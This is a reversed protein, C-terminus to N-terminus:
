LVRQVQPINWVGLAIEEGFFKGAISERRLRIWFHQLPVFSNALSELMIILFLAVVFLPLILVMRRRVKARPVMSEVAFHWRWVFLLKDRWSRPVRGLRAVVAICVWITRSTTASM